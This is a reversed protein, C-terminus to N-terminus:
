KADDGSDRNAPPQHRRSDVARLSESSDAPTASGNHESDMHLHLQPFPIEINANRCTKHIIFRLQSAVIHYREADSVFVRLEFLLASEGFDVFLAYPEPTALVETHKLASDLLLEQVHNIDSGYAVGINISVRVTRDTHTWNVVSNSVLESNPITISAKDFTEIETSVGMINRVIGEHGGVEIWDGVRVPRQALLILGSIFNNVVGQLGLGIGVSLAGFILALNSLGVGLAVVALIAALALGVYGIGVYVSHRVGFDVRTEPLVREYIVRRLLRSAVFVVTFVLLALLFRGPSLTLEGITVGDLLRRSWLYIMSRPMGWVSGIALLLSGILLFDLLGGLWFGLTSDSSVREIRTFDQWAIILRNLFDHLLRRILLLAGLTVVTIAIRSVLFASLEVYGLPALVLATVVVVILFGRLAGVLRSPQDEDPHIAGPRWFRHSLLNLLLLGVIIALILKGLVDLEASYPRSPETAMYLALMIASFGILWQLRRTLRAAVTSDIPLLRWAPAHPVLAARIPAVASVALVLSVTVASVLTMAQEGVLEQNVLTFGIGGFITAPLLGSAVGEAFASLTRQAYSTENAQPQRGFRQKLWRGFPLATMAILLAILLVLWGKWSARSQGNLLDRADVSLRAGLQAADAVVKEWYLSTYIAPSRTLLRAQLRQGRKEGLRELLQEARVIMLEAQKEREILSAIQESIAERQASIVSAEAPEGDKPRPGLADLELEPTELAKAAQAIVQEVDEILTGLRTEYRKFDAVTEENDDLELEIWDLTVGWRQLLAQDKDKAPQAYAFTWAMLLFYCFVLVSAFTKRTNMGSPSYVSYRATTEKRTLSLSYRM